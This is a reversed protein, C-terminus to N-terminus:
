LIGTAAILGIFIAGVTDLEITDDDDDDDDSLLEELNWGGKNGGGFADVFRGKILEGLNSLVVDEVTFSNILLSKGTRGAGGTGITFSALGM